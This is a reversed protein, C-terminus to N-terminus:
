TSWSAPVHQLKDRFRRELSALRRVLADLQRASLLVDSPTERLLDLFAPLLLARFLVLVRWFAARACVQAGGRRRMEVACQSGRFEIGRMATREEKCDEKIRLKREKPRVKLSRVKLASMRPLWAALGKM